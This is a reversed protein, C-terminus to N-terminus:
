FTCDDEHFITYSPHCIDYYGLKGDRIAMRFAENANVARMIAYIMAPYFRIHKKHCRKRLGTVDLEINMQYSTRIQESYYRYHERRPWHSLDIESFAM